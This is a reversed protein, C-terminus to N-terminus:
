STSPVPKETLTHGRGWLVTVNDCLATRYILDRVAIIRLFSRFTSGTIAVLYGRGMANRSVTKRRVHSKRSPSKPSTHGRYWPFVFSCWLYTPTKQGKWRKWNQSIKLPTAKGIRPAFLLLTVKFYNIQEVFHYYQLSVLEDSYAM